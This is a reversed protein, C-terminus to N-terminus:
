LETDDSFNPSVSGWTPHSRTVLLIMILPQSCLGAGARGGAGAGHLRGVLAGTEEGGGPLAGWDGQESLMLFGLGASLLSSVLHSTQLSM